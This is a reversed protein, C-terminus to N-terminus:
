NAAGRTSRPKHGRRGRQLDRRLHKLEAIQRECLSLTTEDIQPNKTELSVLDINAELMDLLTDDDISDDGWKKRIVSSANAVSFITSNRLLMKQKASMYAGVEQVRDLNEIIIRRVLESTNDHNKLAELLELPLRVHLVGWRM